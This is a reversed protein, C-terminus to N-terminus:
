WSAIIFLRMRRQPLGFDACNIVRWHVSFGRSTFTNIMANFFFPHRRVLGSTQELTVVRPKAKELLNFISFLSATNMDDDKGQVTHADSFFQCPPSLHCIDCKYDGKGDAFENAWVQYVPTGFFNMAYTQCAMQNFDFGWKIRLGANIAGRSMGGAGCFCDGFTYRRQEAKSPSTTGSKTPIQRGPAPTQNSRESFQNLTNMRPLLHPRPSSPRSQLRMPNSTRHLSSSHSQRAPMTRALIHPSSSAKSHNQPVNSRSSVSEFGRPVSPQRLESLFNSSAHAPPATLDVVDDVDMDYDLNRKRSLMADLHKTYISSKIADNSGLSLSIPLGSNTATTGRSKPPARLEQVNEESQSHGVTEESDSPSIGRSYGGKGGRLCTSQDLMAQSEPSPRRLRRTSLGDSEKVSRKRKTAPCILFPSTLKCEYIKKSVGTSASAKIQAVVQPIKQRAKPAEIASERLAKSLDFMGTGEALGYESADMVSRNFASRPSCRQGHGRRHQLAHVRPSILEELEDSDSTTERFRFTNVSFASHRNAPRASAPLERSLDAKHLISGVNGRKMLNGVPFELGNSAVLSQRSVSGKHSIAEQRLFEKEGNLWGVEAGGPQTDGRWAHRLDDDAMNNDARKDCEDARIRHLGKECWAYISRAKANPYFCLYKYRCVLVRHNTVTEETEPVEDRFSLAPFAMNTLRINRRKVVESVARIEVGQVLPERPDDDDIHLIWCVENLKRDLLGNMERTRRYMYGRITVESTSADRVIHVIRMFDKDQLEVYSKPSLKVHNYTYENLSEFPYTILPNRPVIVPLKRRTTAKSGINKSLRRTEEQHQQAIWISFEDEDMYDDSGDDPVEVSAPQQRMSSVQIGSSATVSTARAAFDRENKMARPLSSGGEGLACPGTSVNDEHGQM